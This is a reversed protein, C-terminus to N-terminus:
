SDSSSWSPLQKIQSTLWTSQNQLKGLATELATYQATLTAKRSALRLDWSAIQDELDGARTDKGKALSTISGNVSDSAQTALRQLRAAVGDTVLTDDVTGAILDTGAGVAGGFVQQVLAPNEALKTQLVTADFKLTGGNTLTLGLSGASSNKGGVAVASSVANLVNGAMNTLSWNGKLSADSGSTTDTVSDITTLVNNAATVLAQVAAVAASPDSAVTLTASPTTAGVTFSTGDLVGTFTNSSSTVKYANTSTGGVTIQANQAQSLVSFTGVPMSASSVSFDSAKGTATSTLQLRYGSGTNVASATVGAGAKNISTVAETLTVTGDADTDTLTIDKTTGDTTNKVTLPSGLGFSDTAKSWNQGSVLTHPSALQDVSFTLSGAAAGTAATATVASSSSTAKAATWASAVTLAKAASALAAFNTNVRRLDKAQDQAASLQNRLLTQPQAEIEMLQTILTSYDTGSALGTSLSVGSM